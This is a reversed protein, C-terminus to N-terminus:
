HMLQGLKAKRLCKLQALLARNLPYFETEELCCAWNWVQFGFAHKLGFESQSQEFVIMGKLKAEDIGIYSTYARLVGGSM